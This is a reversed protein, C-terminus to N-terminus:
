VIQIEIQDKLVYVLYGEIPRQPYLRQLLNKYANVQQVHIEKEEGTKYDIVVVKDKTFVIRDARYAKLSDQSSLFPVENLVKMGPKFFPKLAPHNLVMEARQKIDEWETEKIYLGFVAKAKSIAKALSDRETRLYSMVYHFAEGFKQEKMPLRLDKLKIEGKVPQAERQLPIKSREWVFTSKAKNENAEKKYVPLRGDEFICTPLSKLCVKIDKGLAAAIFNAWCYSPLFLGNKRRQPRGLLYLATKTRTLAVYFLNLEDQLQRKLAYEKINKLTSSLAVENKKPNMYIGKLSFNTEDYQFILRNKMDNQCDYTIEPLIVAEFELGKAKHVTMVQIAESLAEKAQLLHNQNTELYDLFARLSRPHKQEFQYAVELLQWLNPRDKYVEFLNFTRYIRELLTPLPVFDVMDRIEKLAKEEFRGKLALGELEKDGKGLSKLFHVLDLKRSKDDLYRLLSVVARVAPAALLLVETETQVPIGAEKLVPLFRDAMQKRRVLIAMERYSLGAKLLTKIKELIAKGLETEEPPILEFRIYYPVDKKEEDPVQPSFPFSFERNLFDGIKNVFEVLGGASRYNKPLTEARIFGNFRKKVYDFLEPEGGRFRYIAQKKDGVYFFSGATDRTGIGAILENVLPELVQWQMISTDQFEDLLLHKVKRDLRYYFFDRREEFLGQKVLLRYTLASLDAFTICNERKKIESYYRYFRRYLRFLLEVQWHNSALFYAELAQKLRSFAEECVSPLNKFYNHVELCPRSLLNIQIVEKLSRAMAMKKLIDKAGKHKVQPELTRIFAKLAKWAEQELAKLDTQPPNEFEELAEQHQLFVTFVEKLWYRPHSSPLQQRYAELIAAKLEPDSSVEVLLRDLAENFMDRESAEDAIEVDLRIGLEFPFLRIISAMFSDLTSIELLSFHELLLHYLRKAREKLVNIDPELAFLPAYKGEDKHREAQMATKIWGLLREKMEQAAKNTFTLAVVEQLSAPDPPSTLPIQKLLINLLRLTLTYTKGTGASAELAIHHKPDFLVNM